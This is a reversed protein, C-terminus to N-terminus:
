RKQYGGDRHGGKLEEKDYRVFLFNFLYKFRSQISHIFCTSELPIFNANGM